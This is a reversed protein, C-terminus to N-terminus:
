LAAPYVGCVMVMLPSGFPTESSMLLAAKPFFYPGRECHLFLPVTSMMMAVVMLVRHPESDGPIMGMMM